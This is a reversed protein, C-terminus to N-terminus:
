YLTELVQVILNKMPGECHAFGEKRYMPDVLNENHSPSDKWGQMSMADSLFGYALNEGIKLAPPYFQQFLEGNISHAWYNRTQMDECKKLAVADLESTEILPELGLSARYENHLTLLTSQTEVPKNIVTQVVPQKVPEIKPVPKTYVVYGVFGIVLIIAYKIYKM